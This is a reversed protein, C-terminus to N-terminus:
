PNVTGSQVIVSAGPQLLEAGVTILPDGERLGFIVEVQSGNSIGTLIPQRVAAGNRALYAYKQGDAATLVAMLPVILVNRASGTQVTARAYAGPALVSAPQAIDIRVQYGAAGPNVAPVIDSVRGDFSRGPLSQLTIDAHQGVALQLKDTESVVTQFYVSGLSTVSFIPVGPAAMEGPHIGVRTVVGSIPTTIRTYGVQVQALRVQDQASRVQTVAANVDSDAIAERSQRSARAQDLAQRAETVKEEALQRDEPTAGQKAQLVGADAADAAARAQIAKSRVDELTSLPVVGHDYLFQTRKLAAEAQAAGARAERAQAEARAIEPAGAGAAAKALGTLAQQVGLEATAADDDAQQYALTRGAVAKDYASRAADLQQQAQAEQGRAQTSDVRALEQGASVRSGEVVEVAQVQGAAASSLDATGRSQIVGTLRLERTISGLGVPAVTIPTAQNRVESLLRANEDNKRPAMHPRTRALSVLAGLFVLAAIVAGAIRLNDKSTM